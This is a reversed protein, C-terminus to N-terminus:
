QPPVPFGNAPTCSACLEGSPDFWHQEDPLYFFGDQTKPPIPFGNQVTCSNCVGGDPAIYAKAEASWYINGTAGYNPYTNNSTLSVFENNSNFKCSGQRGTSDIVWAVNKRSSNNTIRVDAMIADYRAAVENKCWGPRQEPLYNQAVTASVFSFSTALGTLFFLFIKM